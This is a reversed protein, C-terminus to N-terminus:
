SFTIVKHHIQYLGTNMSLARSVKSCLKLHKFNVQVFIRHVIYSAYKIIKVHEKFQVRIVNGWPATM